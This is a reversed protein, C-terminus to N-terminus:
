RANAKPLAYYTYTYTWTFDKGPEAAIDIFPEVAMVSRISWLAVRSLPRDATVRMGVGAKANDIRFDYDKTDSGFGEIPFAVREQNELVKTYAIRNGHIAAFEPSPRRGGKIEFPVTITYDPGPPLRDLVLFNHNYVNTQIPLRGTNTIRHSMVLEPKGPTLRITKSYIYGYGSSPDKLEQIFEVSDAKKEVRWKGPDVIEFPKMAFYATEDPKRLVGVGVKVFTGGAKAADYGLPKQFEDVPGTMASVAGVVIEGDRYAFDRVSPDYKTFWPGYYDHGQFILSHIVGSWDFRTSRYFGEKADPLYLKARIQQNSIEAQPPGAAYSCLALVGVSILALIRCMRHM